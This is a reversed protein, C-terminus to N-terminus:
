ERATRTRCPMFYCSPRADDTRPRQAERAAAKRWSASGCVGVPLDSAPLGRGAPCSTVLLLTHCEDRGPGALQPGMAILDCCWQLGWNYQLACLGNCHGQPHSRPRQLSVVNCGCVARHKTCNYADCGDRGM